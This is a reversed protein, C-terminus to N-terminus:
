ISKQCLPCMDSLGFWYLICEDHYIHKCVLELVVNDVMYEMLCICCKEGKDAEERSVTRRVLKELQESTAGKPACRTQLADFSQQLAAMFAAQHVVHDGITGEPGGANAELSRILSATRDAVESVIAERDGASYTARM